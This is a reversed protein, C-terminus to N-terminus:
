HQLLEAEQQLAAIVVKEIRSLPEQNHIWGIQCRYPFDTIHLFTLGPFHEITGESSALPMLTSANSYLLMHRLLDRDDLQVVDLEPNYSLFLDLTQDNLANHYTYYPYSLIDQLTVTNNAALPHERSVVFCMEDQMLAQFQLHNRRIERLFPGDDINCFLIVGLDLSGQAVMRLINPSDSDVPTIKLDPYNEHVRLLM